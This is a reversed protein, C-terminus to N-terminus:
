PVVDAGLSDCSHCEVQARGSTCRESFPSNSPKTLGFQQVFAFSTITSGTPPVCTFGAVSFAVRILQRITHVTSGRGSPAGGRTRISYRAAGKVALSISLFDIIVVCDVVVCVSGTQPICTSGLRAAPEECCAPFVYWNQEWPHLVFNSLSGFLNAPDSGGFPSQCRQSSRTFTGSLATQLRLRCVGMRDM